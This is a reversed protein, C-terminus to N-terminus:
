RRYSVMGFITLFMTRECCLNNRTSRHEVIVKANIKELLKEPKLHKKPTIGHLSTKIFFFSMFNNIDFSITSDHILSCDYFHQAKINAELTENMEM